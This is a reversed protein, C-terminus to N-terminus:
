ATKEDEERKSRLREMLQVLPNQDVGDPAVVAEAGAASSGPTCLYDLYRQVEETEDWPIGALRAAIEFCDSPGVQRNRGSSKARPDAGRELLYEAVDWRKLAVAVTIAAGGHRRSRANIKGGHRLLADTMQRWDDRVGSPKEPLRSIQMYLLPRSYKPNAGHELLMCVIDFRHRTAAEDLPRGSIRDM